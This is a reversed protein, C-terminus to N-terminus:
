ILILIAILVLEVNLISYNEHLWEITSKKNYYWLVNKGKCENLVIGTQVNRIKM